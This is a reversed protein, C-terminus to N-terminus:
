QLGFSKLLDRIRRLEADSVREGHVFDPKAYVTALTRCLVILLPETGASLRGNARAIPAIRRWLM